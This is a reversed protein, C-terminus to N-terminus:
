SRISSSLLMIYFCAEGTVTPVNSNNSVVSAGEFGGRESPRSNIGHLLHIISTGLLPRLVLRFATSRRVGVALKLTFDNQDNRVSYQIGIASLHLCEVNQCRRIRKREDVNSKPLRTTTGVRSCPKVFWLCYKLCSHFYFETCDPV